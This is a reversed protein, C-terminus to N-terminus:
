FPSHSLPINPSWSSLSSFYTWNCLITIHHISFLLTRYAYLIDKLLPIPPFHFMVHHVSQRVLLAPMLESENIEQTSYLSWLDCVYLSLSVNSLRQSFCHLWLFTLAAPVIRLPDIIKFHNESIQLDQRGVPSSTLRPQSIYILVSIM